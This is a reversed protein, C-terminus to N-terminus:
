IKAEPTKTTSHPTGRDPISAGTEADKGPSRRAKDSLAAAKADEVEEFDKCKYESISFFSMQGAANEIAYLKIEPIM